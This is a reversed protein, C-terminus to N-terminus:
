TNQFFKEVPGVKGLRVLSTMITRLVMFLYMELTHYRSIQLVACIFGFVIAQHGNMKGNEILTHLKLLHPYKFTEYSTFLMSKGQQLSVRNTVQNNLSVHNFHDLQCIIELDEYNEYSNQIFPINFSGSNELNSIIINKIDDATSIFSRQILAECGMSHSFGGTPFASDSLQLMILFIRSEDIETM